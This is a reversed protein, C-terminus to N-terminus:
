IATLRADCCQLSIGKCGSKTWRVEGLGASHWVYWFYEGVSSWKFLPLNIYVLHDAQALACQKADKGLSM